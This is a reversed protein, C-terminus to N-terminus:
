DDVVDRSLEVPGLVFTLTHHGGGEIKEKGDESEVGCANYRPPDM